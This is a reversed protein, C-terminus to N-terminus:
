LKRSRMKKVCIVDQNASKARKIIRNELRKKRALGAAEKANQKEINAEVLRQKLDEEYIKKNLEISAQKELEVKYMRLRKLISEFSISHILQLTYQVDDKVYVFGDSNDDFKYKKEFSALISGYVVYDSPITKKLNDETMENDDTLKILRCYYKQGSTHIVTFCQNINKFCLDDITCQYRLMLQKGKATGAEIKLLDIQERLSKRNDILVLGSTQITKKNNLRGSLYELINKSGDTILEITCNETGDEIKIRDGVKWVYEFSVPIIRYGLGDKDTSFIAIKSM